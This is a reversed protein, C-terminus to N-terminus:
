INKYKEKVKIRKIQIKKNKVFKPFHSIWNCPDKKKNRDEQM